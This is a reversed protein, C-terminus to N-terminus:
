PNMIKGMFLINGAERHQITFIFPHDVNFEYTLDPTASKLVMHVSTAGAAETGEENVEIIASHKVKEIFLNTKGTMGSFDADMSFAEPMGMDILTQKLNYDTEINFKPLIVNVNATFLSDMWDKLKDNNLSEEIKTINNEKPLLIMMSLNNGEYPLELIQLDDNEFYKLEIDSNYLKM